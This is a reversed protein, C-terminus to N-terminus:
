SVSFILTCAGLGLALTGIVVGSFAPYRVLQRGALRLRNM